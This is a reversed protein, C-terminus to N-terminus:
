ASEDDDTLEVTQYLMTDPIVHTNHCLAYQAWRHKSKAQDGILFRSQEYRKAWALEVYINRRLTHNFRRGAIIHMHHVISGYSNSLKTVDQHDHFPDSSVAERILLLKSKFLEYKCLLPICMWDKAENKALNLVRTQYETPGEEFQTIYLIEVNRRGSVILLAAVTRWMDHLSTVYKEELISIATDLIEQAKTTTMMETSSDVKDMAQQHHHEKRKRQVEPPLVFEYYSDILPRIDKFITDIQSHPIIRKKYGHIRNQAQLTDNMIVQLQDQIQPTADPHDMLLLMDDYYDPNRNEEDRYMLRRIQCWKNYRISNDESSTMIKHVAEKSRGVKILEICQQYM